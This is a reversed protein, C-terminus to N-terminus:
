VIRKTPLTLHTYSVPIFEGQALLEGNRTYLACSCDRRVKINTSFAAKVLYINMEEATWYLNNVLISLIVQDIKRM